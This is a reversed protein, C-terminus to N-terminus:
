IYYSSIISQQINVRRSKKKFSTKKLSSYEAVRQNHNLEFRIRISTMTILTFLAASNSNKNSQM